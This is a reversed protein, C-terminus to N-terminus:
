SLSKMSASHQPSPTPAPLQSSIRSSPRYWPSLLNRSLRSTSYTTSLFLVWLRHRQSIIPSFPPHHSVQLKFKNEPALSTHYLTRIRQVITPVDADAAGDVIKLFEEHTSPCPFTFPLDSSSLQRAKSKGKASPAVSVLNEHEGQEDESDDASGEEEEEEGGSSEGEDDPGEDDSLAEDEEEEAEVTDGGELGAGLGGLEADEDYFDDELDDAGRKRKGKGKEKGEGDSEEELGLMRRRRAREAKELAEKEELALEEETKTRDKPKARKDFALERVHQDYDDDQAEPALVKLTENVDSPPKATSEARTGLPVLNSGSSTSPDPAYILDRLAAFDNDLEHRVNEGAQKEM